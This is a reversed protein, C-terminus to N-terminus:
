RAVGTLLKQITEANRFGSHLTGDPLLLTPTGQIGLSEGLRLTADVSGGPEQESAPPLTGGAFAADLLELSHRALIVRSKDYAQPHMKLPFLKIYIVVDSDLTVLKKLEDHLQRCYPCDPDTFVFLRRKGQPNGMIISDTLPIATPVDKEAGQTTSSPTERTEALPFLPGPIVYRKGFDLFAVATRGERQLGIRWLGKVPSPSVETVVGVKKLLEGAEKVTLTHCATCDGGPCGVAGYGPLVLASLLLFVILVTKM